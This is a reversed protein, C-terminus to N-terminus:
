TEITFFNQNKAFYCKRTELERVVAELNVSAHYREHDFARRERNDAYEEASPGADALACTFVHLGFGVNITITRTPHSRSSQLECRFRFPHLHALSYRRGDSSTHPRWRILGAAWNVGMISIGQSFACRGRAHATRNHKSHPSTSPM